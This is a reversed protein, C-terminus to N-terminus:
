VGIAFFKRPTKLRLRSLTHCRMELRKLFLCNL